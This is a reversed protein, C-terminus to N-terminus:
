SAARRSGSRTAPRHIPSHADPRGLVLSTPPMADWPVHIAQLAPCHIELCGDNVKGRTVAYTLRVNRYWVDIHTAQRLAANFRDVVARDANWRVKGGEKRLPAIRAVPIPGAYVVGARALFSLSVMNGGSRTSM